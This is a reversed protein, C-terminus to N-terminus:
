TKQMSVLGALACPHTIAVEKASIRAAAASIRFYRTVANQAAKNLVQKQPTRAGRQSNMSVFVCLVCLTKDIAM